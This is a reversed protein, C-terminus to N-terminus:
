CWSNSQAGNLSVFILFSLLYTTSHNTSGGEGRAFDDKTCPVSLLSSLTISDHLLRSRIHDYWSHPDFRLFLCTSTRDDNTRTAVGCLSYAKFKDDVMIPTRVTRFHAVIDRQLLSAQSDMVFSIFCLWCPRTNTISLLLSVYEAINCDYTRYKSEVKFHKLYAQGHSPEIWQVHSL